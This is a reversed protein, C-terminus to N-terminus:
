SDYGIFMIGRSGIVMFRRVKEEELGGVFENEEIFCCSRTCHLAVFFSFMHYVRRERKRHLSYLTSSLPCSHPLRSLSCFNM